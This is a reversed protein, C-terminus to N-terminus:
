WLETVGQLVDKRRDTIDLSSPSSKIEVSPALHAARVQLLKHDQVSAGLRLHQVAASILTAM